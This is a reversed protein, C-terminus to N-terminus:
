GKVRRDRRKRRSAELIRESENPGQDFFGAPWEPIAGFENITVTRFSSVTGSREVFHIVMVEQLRESDPSEAVKLRLRNILYESHTEVICQRGSRSVAIFFEALLSQVAPHLHLEPQEFLLLSGRESILSMVVLPLVQSVGVGVNTLDVARELGGPRVLLRHGLKGEEVTEVDDAMSFYKMWITVAESLRRQGRTNTPDQPAVFDVLRSANLDLVAATYQGKPGVDQPDASSAIGYVPRPDDRLPGLYRVNSFFEVVQASLLDIDEPLPAYQFVNVQTDDGIRGELIRLVEARVDLTAGRKNATPRRRIEDLYQPNQAIFEVLASAVQGRLSSGSAEALRRLTVLGTNPSEDIILDILHSMLLPWFLVREVSSAPLFHQLRAGVIEPPQEQEAFHRRYTRISRRARPSFTVRYRIDDAEVPRGRLEEDSTVTAILKRVEFDSRRIMVMEPTADSESEVTPQGAADQLLRLDLNARLVDAQLQLSKGVDKPQTETSRGFTIDASIRARAGVFRHDYYLRRAYAALPRMSSIESELTFGLGITKEPAGEFLVDDFTGLKVLEGNLVLHRRVVKSTLTQSILLMSQIVSSKGSSNAGALVTLPRFELRQSPGVSKFQSMRWERIM